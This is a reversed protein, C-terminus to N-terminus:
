ASRLLLEHCHKLRDRENSDYPTIPKLTFNIRNIFDVPNDKLEKLPVYSAPQLTLLRYLRYFSEDDNNLYARGVGILGELNTLDNSRVEQGELNIYIVRARADELDKIQEKRLLKLPLITVTSDNVNKCAFSVLKDINEEFSVKGNTLNRIETLFPKQNLAAYGEWAKITYPKEVLSAKKYAYDVVHLRIVERALLCMEPPISGRLLLKDGGSSIKSKVNTVVNILNKAHERTKGRLEIMMDSFKIRGDIRVFIGVNLLPKVLNYYTKNIFRRDNYPSMRPCLDNKVSFGEGLAKALLGGPGDDDRIAILLEAPNATRITDPSPTQGGKDLGAMFIHTIEQPGRSRNQNCIKLLNGFDDKSVAGTTTCLNYFRSVIKDYRSHLKDFINSRGSEYKIGRREAIDVATWFYGYWDLRSGILRKFIEEIEPDSYLSSQENPKQSSLAACLGQRLQELEALYASVASTVSAPIVLSPEAPEAGQQATPIAGEPGNGEVVAFNLPKTDDWRPRYEDFEKGTYHVFTAGINRLPFGTCTRQTLTFPACDYEQQSFMIIHRNRNQVLRRLVTLADISDETTYMGEKFPCYGYIFINSNATPVAEEIRDIVKILSTAKIQRVLDRFDVIYTEEKDDKRNKAMNECLAKALDDTVGSAYLAAHATFVRGCNANQYLVMQVSNLADATDTPTKPSPEVVLPDTKRPAVEVGADAADPARHSTAGPSVSGAPPVGASKANLQRPSPEAPLGGPRSDAVVPAPRGTGAPSVSSGLKPLPGSNELYKQVAASLNLKPYSQEFTENPCLPMRGKVEETLKATDGALGPQEELVDRVINPIRRRWYGINPWPSGPIGVVQDKEGDAPKASQSVDPTASKSDDGGQGLIQQKGDYVLDKLREFGDRKKEDEARDIMVQTERLEADLWWLAKQEDGKRLSELANNLNRETDLSWSRALRANEENARFIKVQGILSLLRTDASTRDRSVGNATAAGLALTAPSINTDPQARRVPGTLNVSGDIKPLPTLEDDPMVNKPGFPKYPKRSRKIDRFSPNDSEDVFKRLGAQLFKRVDLIKQAPLSMDAAIDEDQESAIIRSAIEQEESDMMRILRDLQAFMEGGVVASFPGATEDVMDYREERADYVRERPPAGRMEVLSFVERLNIINNFTIQTGSQQRDGSLTRRLPGIQFTKYVPQKGHKSLEVNLRPYGDKIETKIISARWGGEKFGLISWRLPYHSVPHFTILGRSDTRGLQLGVLKQIEENSMLPSQIAMMKSLAKLGLRTDVDLVYRVNGAEVNAGRLRKTYGGIQFTRLIPPKGKKTFRVTLDYHMNQVGCKLVVTKWGKDNFGLAAWNFKFNNMLRFSIKGYKNTTGLQLGTIDPLDDANSKWDFDGPKAIIQALGKLGLRDDIDLAMKTKGFEENAGHLEATLYPSIQFCKVIRKDEKSLEVTFWFINDEIGSDNIVAEWGDDNVGLIPWHFPYNKFPRLEIRGSNNTKGLRLNKLNPINETMVRWKLEDPKAIINSLAHAGLQDSIDLVERNKGRERGIGRANATYRGIQFVRKILKGEKSLKVKFQYM